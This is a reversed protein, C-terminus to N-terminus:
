LVEKDVQTKSPDEECYPQVGMWGRQQCFMYGLSSTSLKYGPDCEYLVSHYQKGPLLVNEVTSYEKVYGKDVAPPPTEM